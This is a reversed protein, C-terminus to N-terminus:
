LVARSIILPMRIRKISVHRTSALQNPLTLALCNEKVINRSPLTKTRTQRNVLPHPTPPIPGERRGLRGEPNEKGTPGRSYCTVFTIDQTTKQNSFFHSESTCVMNTTNLVTQLKFVKHLGQEEARALKAKDMTVNFMVTNVDCNNKFDRHVCFM